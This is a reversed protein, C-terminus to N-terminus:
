KRELYRNNVLNFIQSAIGWNANGYFSEKGLRAFYRRGGGVQTGAALLAKTIGFRNKLAYVKNKGPIFLEDVNETFYARLEANIKKHVGSPFKKLTKIRLGNLEFIKDFEVRGMQEIAESREMVETPALSEDKLLGPHIHM